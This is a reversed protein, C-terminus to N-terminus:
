PLNIFSIIIGYAERECSILISILRENHNLIKPRFLSFLLTNHILVEAFHVGNFSLILNFTFHFDFMNEILWILKVCLFM